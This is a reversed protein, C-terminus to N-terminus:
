RIARVPAEDPGQLAVDRCALTGYMYARLVRVIQEAVARDDIAALRHIDLLERETLRIKVIETRKGHDETM